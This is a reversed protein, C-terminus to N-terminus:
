KVTGEAGAEIEEDALHPCDMVDKTSRPNFASIPLFAKALAQYM